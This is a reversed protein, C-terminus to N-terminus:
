RTAPASFRPMASCRASCTTACRRRRGSARPVASVTSARSCRIRSGRRRNRSPQGRAEAHRRLAGRRRPRVRRPRAALELRAPERRAGVRLGGRRDGDPGSGGAGHRREADAGPRERQLTHRGHQLSGDASGPDARPHRGRQRLDQGDGRHGPSAERDRRRRSARPAPVPSRPAGRRRPRRPDRDDHRPERRRALRPGQREPCLAGHLAGRGLEQPHRGRRARGRHDPLRRRLHRDPPVARVGHGAAAPRRAAGHRQRRRHLHPRLYLLFLRPRLRRDRPHHGPGPFPAAHRGGHRARARRPLRGRAHHPRDRLVRHLVARPAQPEAPLAHAADCARHSGRGRLHAARHGQRLADDHRRVAAPLHARGRHALVAPRLARTRDRRRAGRPVHLRDRGPRGALRFGEGHRLLPLALRRRGHQRARRQHRGPGRRHPQADSVGQHHLRNRTGGGRARADRATGCRRRGRRRRRRSPRDGSVVSM